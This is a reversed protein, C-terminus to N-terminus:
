TICYYDGEISDGTKATHYAINKELTMSKEPVKPINPAYAANTTTSIEDEFSRHEKDDTHGSPFGEYAVNQKMCVYTKGSINQFESQRQYAVDASTPAVEGDLIEDNRRHTQLSNKSSIM